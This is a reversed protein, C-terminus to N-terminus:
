FKLPIGSFRSAIQTQGIVLNKELLPDCLGFSAEFNTGFVPRSGSFPVAPVYLNPPDKPDKPNPKPPQKIDLIKAAMELQMVRDTYESWFEDLSNFSDLKEKLHKTLRM